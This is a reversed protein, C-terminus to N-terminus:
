ERFSALYGILINLLVAFVIGLTVARVILWGTVVQFPPNRREHNQHSQAKPM